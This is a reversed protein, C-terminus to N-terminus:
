QSPPFRHGGFFFSRDGKNLDLVAMPLHEFLNVTYVTSPNEIPNNQVRTTEALMLDPKIFFRYDIYIKFCM